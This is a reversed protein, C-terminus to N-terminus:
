YNDSNTLISPFFCLVNYFGGNNVLCIFVDYFMQKTYTFSFYGLWSFEKKILTIIDIYIYLHILM